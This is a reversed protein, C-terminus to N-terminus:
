NEENKERKKRQMKKKKEKNSSIRNKQAEIAELNRTIKKLFFFMFRKPGEKGKKRKYVHKQLKNKEKTKATGNKKKKM